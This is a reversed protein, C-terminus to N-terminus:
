KQKFAAKILRLLSKAVETAFVGVFALIATECVNVCFHKFTPNYTINIGMFHFAHTLSVTLAAGMYDSYKRIFDFIAQM